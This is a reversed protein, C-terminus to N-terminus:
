NIKNAYFIAYPLFEFDHNHYCFELGYSRCLKIWDPTKRIITELVEPTRLEEPLYPLTVVKLGVDRAYTLVDELDDGSWKEFPIHLHVNVVELGCDAAIQKLEAPNMSGYGGVSVFEVGQYGMQGLAKLTKCLDEATGIKDMCSYLQIGIKM